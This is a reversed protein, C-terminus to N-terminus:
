KVCDGHPWFLHGVVVGIAFAIIPYKRSFYLLNYSVTTGYGRTMLTWVDYGIALMIVVTTLVVTIPDYTPNM